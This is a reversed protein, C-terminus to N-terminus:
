RDQNGEQVLGVSGPAIVGCMVSKIGHRAYIEDFLEKGGGFYFWAMYEGSRPGFPVSGFMALAPEKGVWYGPTSWAADISGAGVADFVELAPVLAGPEYFRIRINGGSVEEIKDSIRKGLTGLQTLTGPYTSGMKWRVRDQAEATSTAATMGMGLALGAVIGGAIASGLRSAIKM